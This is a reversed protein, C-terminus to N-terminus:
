SNQLQYVLTLHAIELLFHFDILVKHVVFDDVKLLAETLLDIQSVLLM